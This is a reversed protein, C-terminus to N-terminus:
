AESKAGHMRTSQERKSHMQVHQTKEQMKAYQKREHLICTAKSKAHHMHTSQRKGYVTLKHMSSTKRCKQVSGGKRSWANICVSEKRCRANTCTETWGANIFAAESRARHM